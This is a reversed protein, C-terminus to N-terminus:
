LQCVMMEQKIESVSSVLLINILISGPTQLRLCKGNRIKKRSIDELKVRKVNPTIFPRRLRKRKNGHKWKFMKKVTM